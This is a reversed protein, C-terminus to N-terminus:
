VKGPREPVLPVCFDHTIM